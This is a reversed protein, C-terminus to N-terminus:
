VRWPDVLELDLGEFDEVNRTALAAGHARCVAAIQADFTEIPRGATDRAIVVAPYYTAADADFSLIQHGFAAFVGDARTRLAEKRRGEPLREIGYRVEAVTVSTTFRESANVHRAWHRVARHSESQMLESLVNTDIIIV